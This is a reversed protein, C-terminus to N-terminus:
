GGAKGAARWGDGGDHHGRVGRQIATHAREARGPGGLAVAAAPQRRQQTAGGGGVLHSPTRLEAQKTMVAAARLDTEFWQKRSM